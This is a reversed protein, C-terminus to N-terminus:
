RRTGANGISLVVHSQGPRPRWRFAFIGDREVLPQASLRKQVDGIASETFSVPPNGRSQDDVFVFYVVPARVPYTTESGTPSFQFPFAYVNDRLAFRGVEGISVIVEAHEPIAQNLKTLMEAKQPSVSIWMRLLPPLAWITVIAFTVASWGTLLVQFRRWLGTGPRELIRSWLHVSGVVMFVVVPWNQFSIVIFIPSANLLSPTLVVAAVGFGWPSALGILGGSVVVLAVIGLRGSAVHWVASSHTLARLILAGSSPSRTSGVGLYSYQTALLRGGMGVTRLRSMLEVWGLGVICLLLGLKRTGRGALLAALGVGGILFAGEIHSLLTLPTWLWLRSSRGSWLSWGTLVGFLATLTQFHFESSVTGYLWPNVLLLLLAGSCIALPQRPSSVRARVMIDVVWRMVFYETLTVAVAQVVLLAVPSSWIPYLLALPWMLYEAANRSFPTSFFSCWPNLHAHGIKWWAQSYVGFDQALAYRRYQEDNVIVIAVCQLALVVLAIRRLRVSWKPAPPSECEQDADVSSPSSRAIELLYDGRGPTFTM